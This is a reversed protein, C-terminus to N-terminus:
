ASKELVSLKHRLPRAYKVKEGTLSHFDIITRYNIIKNKIDLYGYIVGHRVVAMLSQIKNKTKVYRSYVMMPNLTFYHAITEQHTKHMLTFRTAYRYFFHDHYWLCRNNKYDYCFAESYQTGEIIQFLHNYQHLSSYYCALVFPKNCHTITFVRHWAKGSKKAEAQQQEILPFYERMIEVHFQRYNKYISYTTTAPSHKM